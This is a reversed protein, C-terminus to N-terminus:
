LTILKLNTFHFGGMKETITNSAFIFGNVVHWFREQLFLYETFKNWYAVDKCYPVDKAIDNYDSINAYGQDSKSVHNCIRLSQSGSAEHSCLNKGWIMIVIVNISVILKKIFSKSLYKSIALPNKQKTKKRRLYNWIWCGAWYRIAIVIYSMIFSNWIYKWFLLYTSNFQILKWFNFYCLILNKSVSFFSRNDSENKHM